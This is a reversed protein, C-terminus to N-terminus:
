VHEILPRAPPSGEGVLCFLRIRPLFVTEAVQLLHGQLRSTGLCKTRPHESYPTPQCLSPFFGPLPGPSVAGGACQPSQLLGPGWRRACCGQCSGMLRREACHPERQAGSGSSGCTSLESSVRGQQGRGAQRAWLPGERPCCARALPPGPPQSSHAPRGELAFYQPLPLPPSVLGAGRGGWGTVDEHSFPPGLHPPHPAPGM